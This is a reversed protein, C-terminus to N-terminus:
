SSFVPTLWVAQCVDYNLIYYFFNLPSCQIIPMFVLFLLNFLVVYMCMCACVICSMCFTCLCVTCICVDALVPMWVATACYVCIRDWSIKVPHRCWRTMHSIIDCGTAQCGPHFLYMSISSVAVTFLTLFTKPTRPDHIAKDIIPWNDLFFNTKMAM